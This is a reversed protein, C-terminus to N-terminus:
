VTIPSYDTDYGFYRPGAVALGEPTTWLETAPFGLVTVRLGYRMLETTVPEGLESDVACILDPVTCVIQGNRRAILNENQFEIVMQEVSHNDLGDISVSGRAFGATTCRDVDMVKGGFLVKGPCTGLIAGLPDDGRVRAEKVADGLNRALSLTNLVATNRVQEAAM